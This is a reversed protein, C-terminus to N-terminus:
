QCYKPTLRITNENDKFNPRWLGGDNYFKGTINLEIENKLGHRITIIKNVLKSKSCTSYGCISLTYFCIIM